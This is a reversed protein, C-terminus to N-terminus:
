SIEEWDSSAVEANSWDYHSLEGVTNIGKWTDLGVRIFQWGDDHKVVSGLLTPLERKVVAKEVLYYRSFDTSFYRGVTEVSGEHLVTVKENLYLEMEAFNHYSVHITDGIGLESKSVETFNTTM